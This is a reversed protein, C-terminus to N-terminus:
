KNNVWHMNCRIQIITKPFAGIYNRIYYALVKHLDKEKFKLKKSQEEKEIIEEEDIDLSQKPTIGPIYFRKPRSGVFEFNTNGPDNASSYLRASLTERPTKGLTQLSQIYGKKEAYQWVESASMPRLNEELVKRALELFTM